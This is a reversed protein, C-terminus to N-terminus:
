NPRNWGPVGHTAPAGSEVDRIAPERTLSGTSDTTGHHAHFGIFALHLVAQRMEFDHSPRRVASTLGGAPSRSGPATEPDFRLWIM